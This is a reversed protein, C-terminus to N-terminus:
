SEATAALLEQLQKLDYPKALFTARALDVRALGDGALRGDGSALVVRLQPQRASLTKALEIGSGDNLNVDTFLLDFDSDIAALAESSGACSTVRCGFALLCEATLERLRDDDEM